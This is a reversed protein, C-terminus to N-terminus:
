VDDEGGKMNDNERPKIFQQAFDLVKDEDEKVLSKVKKPRIKILHKQKFTKFNEAVDKNLWVQWLNDEADQELVFLIFDLLGRMKYTKLLGM